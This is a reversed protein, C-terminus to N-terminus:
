GALMEFLLVGLAWWDVGQGFSEAGRSVSQSASALAKGHGKSQIMEPALYRACLTQVRLNKAQLARRM